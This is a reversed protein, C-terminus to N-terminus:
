RGDGDAEVQRRRPQSGIADIVEQVEACIAEKKEPTLSDYGPEIM